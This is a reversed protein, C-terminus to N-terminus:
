WRMSARAAAREAQSKEAWRRLFDDGVVERARAWPLPIGGDLPREERVGCLFAIADGLDFSDIVRCDIMAVGGPFWPDGASTSEVVLGSLKGGARGSHLGLPELLGPQRDSLLTIALSGSDAVLGTTYNTKSLNVLLRPRDPVVSAGFISVCIQANPGRQGHSGVAALPAWFHSLASTPPPVDAM